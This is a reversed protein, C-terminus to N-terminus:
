RLNIMAACFNVVSGIMLWMFRSMNLVYPGRVGKSGAEDSCSASCLLTAFSVLCIEVWAFGDSSSGVSRCFVFIFIEYEVNLADM